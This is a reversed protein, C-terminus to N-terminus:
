QVTGVPQLTTADVNVAITGILVGANGASSYGNVIGLHLVPVAPLTDFQRGTEISHHVPSPNVGITAYFGTVKAVASLVNRLARGPKTKIGNGRGVRGNGAIEHNFGALRVTM